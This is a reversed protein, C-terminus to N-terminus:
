CCEPYANEEFIKINKQYINMIQTINGFFMDKHHNIKMFKTLSNHNRVPCINCVCQGLCM